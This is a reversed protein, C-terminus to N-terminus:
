RRFSARRQRSRPGAEGARSQPPTPLSSLFGFAGPIGPLLSRRLASFVPKLFGSFSISPKTTTMGAGRRRLRRPVPPPPPIPSVHGCALSPDDRLRPHFFLGATQPISIYQEVYGHLLLRVSLLVLLIVVFSLSRKLYIEGNVVEFRSTWILPTALFVAGALFAILGWWVPFHTSPHLFMLFGTSMGLPPMIIGKPTVPRKTARIRLIIVMLAMTAVGLTFAIQPHLSIAHTM